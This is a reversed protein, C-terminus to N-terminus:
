KVKLQICSMHQKANCGGRTVIFQPDWAQWTLGVESGTDIVNALRLGATQAENELALKDDTTLLHKVQYRQQANSVIWYARQLEDNAATKRLNGTHLTMLGAVAVALILAAILVEFLSFGQQKVEIHLSRKPLLQFYQRTM